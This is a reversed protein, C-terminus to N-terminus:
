VHANVCLAQFLRICARWPLVVRGFGIEVGGSGDFVSVGPFPVGVLAAGAVVAAGGGGAVVGGFGVDVGGVFFPGALPVGLFFGVKGAM